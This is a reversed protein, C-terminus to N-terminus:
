YDTSEIVLAINASYLDEMELVEEYRERAGTEDGRFAEYHDSEDNLCYVVLFTQEISELTEKIAKLTEENQRFGNHLFFVKKTDNCVIAVTIGEENDDESKWYDIHTYNDEDTYNNRIEM